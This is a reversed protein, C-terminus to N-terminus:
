MEVTNRASIIPVLAKAIRDVRENEKDIWSGPAIYFTMEKIILRTRFGTHGTAFSIKKGKSSQNCLELFPYKEKKDNGRLSLITSRLRPKQSVIDM